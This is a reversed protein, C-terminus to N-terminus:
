LAASNSEMRKLGSETAIPDCSRNSGAVGFHLNSIGSVDVQWVFEIEFALYVQSQILKNRIAPLLSGIELILKTNLIVISYREDM